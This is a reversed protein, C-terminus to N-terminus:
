KKETLSTAWTAGGHSRRCEGRGKGFCHGKETTKGDPKFYITGDIGTEAGKKKGGYPIANVLFVAWWQFQYKDFAALARAGDPDKTTGHLEFMIGAFADQLRREILSIALHTIDIGIWNRRLKQNAHVATGCGCFPDLVIDSENSSAQIMRELLALPKRTPYGLREQAQSNIPSIDTRVTGMVGGEM